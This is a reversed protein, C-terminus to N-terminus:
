SLKSNLRLSRRSCVGLISSFRFGSYANSRWHVRWTFRPCLRVRQDVFDCFQDFDFGDRGPDAIALGGIHAPTDKTEMSLFVADLPTLQKM